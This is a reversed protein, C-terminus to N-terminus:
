KIHKTTLFNIIKMTDEFWNALDNKLQTHSNITIFQAVTTATHNYKTSAYAKVEIDKVIKETNISINNFYLACITNVKRGFEKMENISIAVDKKSIHIDNNISYGASYYGQIAITLEELKIILREKRARRSIFWQNSLLITIALLTSILAIFLKAQEKPDDFALSFWELM